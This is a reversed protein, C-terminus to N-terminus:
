LIKSLTKKIYHVTCEVPDLTYISLSTEADLCQKKIHTSSTKVGLDHLFRVERKKPLLFHHSYGSQVRLFGTMDANRSASM